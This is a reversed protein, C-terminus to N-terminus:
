QTKFCLVKTSFMSHIMYILEVKQLQNKKENIVSFGTTLRKLSCFVSCLIHPKIADGQM